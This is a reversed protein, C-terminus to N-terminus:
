VHDEARRGACQQRPDDRGTRRDIPSCDGLRLGAGGSSRARSKEARWFRDFLKPLDDDPVGPGNDSLSVAVGHASRKVDVSVEGQDPIYQIANNLLNSIVQEVRQGDASVTPLDNEVEVTM